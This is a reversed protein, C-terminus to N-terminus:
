KMLSPMKIYIRVAVLVIIAAYLWLIHQGFIRTWLPMLTTIVGLAVLWKGMFGSLEKKNKIFKEKHGALLVLKQKIWVLYGLLCVLLGTFILIVDNGSLVFQNVIDLFFM